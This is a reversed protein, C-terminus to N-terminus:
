PQFDLQAKDEYRIVAGLGRSTVGEIVIPGGWLAEFVFYHPRFLADIIRFGKAIVGFGSVLREVSGRHKALDSTPPLFAQNSITGFFTSLSFYLYKRHRGCKKHESVVVDNFILLNM